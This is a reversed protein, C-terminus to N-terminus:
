PQPQTIGIDKVEFSIFELPKRNSFFYTGSTASRPPIPTLFRALGRVLKLTDTGAGGDMHLLALTTPAVTALDNGAEGFFRVLKVTSPLAASPAYFWDNGAGGTAELTELNKYRIVHGNVKFTTTGLSFVDRLASGITSLTDAGAQGDVTVGTAALPNGASFDVTVADKGSGGFLEEFNAFVLRRLSGVDTYFSQDLGSKVQWTADANLGTLRDSSGLVASVAKGGVVKDVNLFGGTVNTGGTTNFGDTPGLASITVRQVAALDSLDAADAGLGGDFSGRLSGGTKVLLLDNATGGNLNEVKAFTLVRVSADDQYKGGDAATVTFTSATSLGTLRDTADATSGVLDNVNLLNLGVSPVGTVDYGDVAGLLNVVFQQATRASFDGTDTGLGGDFSGTLSGAVQMVLRDNATGGSLSEFKTFDLTRTSADVYHGGNAADVTWTVAANRGTLDDAGADSGVIVQLNQIGGGVGTVGTLNYGDVIGVAAITPTQGVTASLNATDSGGKGDFDGSLAGAAQVVLTDDASGGTLNEVNFYALTRGSANDTYGGANPAAVTYTGALNLGTLRDDTGTLSGKLVDLNKLGLAVSTGGTTNFGDAAGLATVNIQQGGLASLDATDTGTLGDFSGALTGSAGVVLQDAGSGGILNEIGTFGAPLIVPVAGSGAGTVDFERGADDGDVTDTGGNGAVTGTLSGGNAFEFLDIASGGVLNEFGTISMTRTTNIDRYTGGNLSALIWETNANLGTLTDTVATATLGNVNRLGGAVPSGAVDFGDIGGLATVTLAQGTILASLDVGDTGNKGDFSGTLSGAAGVVLTDGLAGGELNEISVFGGPLLTSVNGANASTLTFTRGTNDGALTDAGGGGDVTGSLTGPTVFQFRDGATGGTLNPVNAFTGGLITSITGANPGTLTYTRPGNDGVLINTGAGGDINGSLSGGAFAFTDGASGGTLNEISFFGAPLVTSVTGANAGTVTFTRATDDGVLTDSGLGGSITGSLTGPSVFLFTDGGSGANLSQVNAFTGGLLGSITGGNAANITYTRGGNDGNVANAGAGGDISGSLSGGANFTFTDNLTGGTLNQINGFGGGALVLTGSNAGTVTFFRPTNDGVLTNSGAGGDIAGALTGGAFVFSDNGTGGTLNEIANFGGGLIPSLTGGGGGLIITFTRGGDDGILTDTGAGANISGSLSGGNAFQFTDSGTGGTLNEVGTFGGPLHGTINGADTGTVAYAHGANDGVITDSGIGGAVTGGSLTAGAGFNITDNGDGADINTAVFTATVNFADGGGIGNLQVTALGTAAETFNVTFNDVAVDAATGGNVVLNTKNAFDIPELADIAVRLLGDGNATGNTLGIANATDPANVTFTGEAVTDTVPALGTFLINQTVAGGTHTVLGADNTPGPTYAGSTASGGLNELADGAQGGGSYSVGNVPAFVGGAPNNIRLLDNGLQGNFTLSTLGTFSVVPGVFPGGVSGTYDRILQYSGSDPGTANVVLLDNDGSGTIAVAGALSPTEIGDFDVPLFGGSTSISGTGTSVFLLTSTQGSPTTFQLTDGPSAPATPNGGHINVDITTSPSVFFNDNGDDGFVNLSTVTALSLTQNVVNAGLPDRTHQLNNGNVTIDDRVNGTTGTFNVTTGNSIVGGGGTNGTITLDSLDLTSFLDVELGFGTNGSFVSDQITVTSEGAKLGDNTNADVRDNILTAGAAFVQIGTAAGTVRLDRITVGNVGVVTIGDGAVPDIVVDTAIGTAGRLTLGSLNAAVSEAYTGAEIIITPNFFSLTLQIGEQIRGTAAAQPSSDDVHLVAFNGQFGPTASSVDTGVELWPTYDVNASVEGAVGAVTNTGYWNGSADVLAASLNNIALGTNGSLDNGLIPGVAGATADIRIGDGTGGTIFNWLVADGTPSLAALSGGNVLNVAAAGSGTITNQLLNAIGNSDVLVGTNSNTITNRALRVPQNGAFNSGALWQFGLNAGTVTNGTYAVTTTPSSHSTVRFATIRNTAPTGGTTANLV